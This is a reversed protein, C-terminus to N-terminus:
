LTHLIATHPKQTRYTKLRTKKSMRVTMRMEANQFLVLNGQSTIYSFRCISNSDRFVTKDM